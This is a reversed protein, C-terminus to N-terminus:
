DIMELNDKMWSEGIRILGGDPAGDYIKHWCYTTSTEQEEFKFFWMQYYSKPMYVTGDDYLPVTLVAGDGSGDSWQTYHGIDGANDQVFYKPAIEDWEAQITPWDYVVKTPQGPVALLLGMEKNMGYHQAWMEDKVKYREWNEVHDKEKKERVYFVGDEGVYPLYQGLMEKIAHTEIYKKDIRKLVHTPVDTVFRVDHPVSCDYTGTTASITGSVGTEFDTSPGFWIQDYTGYHLRLNHPEWPAPECLCTGIETGDIYMTYNAGNTLEMEPIYVFIQTSNSQQFMVSYTTDLAANTDYGYKDTTVWEGNVYVLIDGDRLGDPIDSSKEFVFPHESNLEQFCVKLELTTIDYVCTHKTQWTGYNSSEPDRSRSNYVAQAASVAGSFASPASDITTGSLGVYESYWFPSTSSEYTNTYHLGNMIDEIADGNAIRQMALNYREVGASHEGLGNKVSPAGGVQSAPTNYSGDANPTTGFIRFNTMVAKDNDVETIVVNGGVYEVVYTNELDGILYHPLLGSERASESFHIRLNEKITNAAELATGCHDLIYRPIMNACISAKMIGTPEIVDPTTSDNPMVNMSVFVHRDNIGDVCYFPLLIYEHAYERSYVFKRDLKSIQGCLCLTANLGGKRPTHVVFDVQENYIWDLNRGFANGVRVSSCGGTSAVVEDFHEYAYAYNLDDYHAEYAYSGDQGAEMVEPTPIMDLRTYYGDYVDSFNVERWKGTLVNSSNSSSFRYSTETEVCYSILGEPLYREDFGRMSALTGFQAREDLPKKGFYKFNDAVQRAM